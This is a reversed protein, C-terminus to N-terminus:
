DGEGFLKLEFFLTIALIVILIPIFFDIAILALLIAIVPPFCAWLYLQVRNCKRRIMDASYEVLRICYLNIFFATIACAVISLLYVLVPAKQTYPNGVIVSWNESFCGVSTAASPVRFWGGMVYGTPKNEVQRQEIAYTAETVIFGLRSSQKDRLVKLGSKKAAKVAERSPRKEKLSYNDDVLYFGAIGGWICGLLCVIFLPKNIKLRM